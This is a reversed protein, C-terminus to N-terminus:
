DYIDVSITCLVYQIYMTCLSLCVDKRVPMLLSALRYPFYM